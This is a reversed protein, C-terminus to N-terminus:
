YIEEEEDIFVDTNQINEKAYEGFSLDNLISMDKLDKHLESYAQLFVSSPISIIFNSEEETLKRSDIESVIQLLRRVDTEDSSKCKSINTMLKEFNIDM